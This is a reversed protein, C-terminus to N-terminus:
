RRDFRYARVVENEIQMTFMPNVHMPTSFYWDYTSKNKNEPSVMISTPPGLRNIVEAVTSGQRIEQQDILRQVAERWEKGANIYDDNPIRKLQWALNARRDLVENLAGVHVLSSQSDRLQLDLLHDHNIIVLTPQKILRASYSSLVVGSSLLKGDIALVFCRDQLKHAGDVGSYRSPDLTWRGNEKNWATVNSETLTAETAPLTSASPQTCHHVDNLGISDTIWLSLRPVDSAAASFSLCLLFLTAIKM